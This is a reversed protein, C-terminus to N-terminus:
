PTFTTYNAIIKGTGNGGSYNLLHTRFSVPANLINAPAITGQTAPGAVAFNAASGTFASQDGSDAQQTALGNFFLGGLGSSYATTGPTLEYVVNVIVVGVNLGQAPIVEFPTTGAALIDAATIHATASLVDPM